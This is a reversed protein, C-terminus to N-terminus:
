IQRFALLLVPYLIDLEDPTNELFRSFSTVEKKYNEKEEVKSAESVRWQWINWIKIWVDDDKGPKQNGLVQSLWFNGRSRVEDPSEEYYSKLLGDESEIDILKLLYAKLLHEALREDIMNFNQSKQM